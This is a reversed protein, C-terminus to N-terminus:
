AGGPAGPAPAGRAPPTRGLVALVAKLDDWAPKKAEENRLLYSPHFTPILPTGRWALRQGRMRTIGPTEPGMLAKLPVNGLTCIVKPRLVGLQAELFPMCAAVEDPEPNRNGPPRCKVVNCIFVDSRAFGMARIMRDLLQGAAGVFPRGSADEDAGPGEGVFVVEPAAAGEGPVTRQRTPCLKCAQCAAVATAIAQLDSAPLGSLAFAPRPQGAFRAPPTDAGTAPAPLPTRVLRAEPAATPAQRTPAPAPRAAPAATAATTATGRGIFEVGLGRDLEVLQRLNNLLEGM